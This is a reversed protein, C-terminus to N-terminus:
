YGVRSRRLTSPNLKHNRVRKAFYAFFIISSLALPAGKVLGFLQTGWTEIKLGPLRHVEIPQKENRQRDGFFEIILWSADPCSKLRAALRGWFLRPKLPQLYNEGGPADDFCDSPSAVGIRSLPRASGQGRVASYRM